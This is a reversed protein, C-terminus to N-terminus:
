QVASQPRYKCVRTADHCVSASLGEKALPDIASLVPRCHKVQGGRTSGGCMSAPQWAPWAM